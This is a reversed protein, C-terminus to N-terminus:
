KKSPRLLARCEKLPHWICGTTPPALHTTAWACLSLNVKYEHYKVHLNSIDLSVESLIEIEFNRKKRQYDSINRLKKKENIIMFILLHKKKENIIMFIELNRKKM